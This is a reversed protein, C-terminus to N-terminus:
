KKNETARKFIQSYDSRAKMVCENIIQDYEKLLPEIKKNLDEVATLQNASISIDGGISRYSALIEKDTDWWAKYNNRNTDCEKINGIIFDCQKKAESFDDKFHEMYQTVAMIGAKVEKMIDKSHEINLEETSVSEAKIKELESTLEETKKRQIEVDKELNEKQIQLDDRIKKSNANRIERLTDITKRIEVIEVAAEKENTKYRDLATQLKDKEKLLKKLEAEKSKNSVEQRSNNGSLISINNILSNYETDLTRKQSELESKEAEAAAKKKELDATEFKLDETEKSIKELADAKELHDKYASSYLENIEAIRAELDAGSNMTKIMKEKEEDLKDALSDCAIGVAKKAKIFPLTRNMSDEADGSQELANRCLIDIVSNITEFINDVADSEKADQIRVTCSRLKDIVNSIAEKTDQGM